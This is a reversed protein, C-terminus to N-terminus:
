KHIVKKLAQEFEEYTQKGIIVHKQNGQSDYIFTAPIAGSWETNLLNIFDEPESIKLLYNEFSVNQSKLFPIVKGSLDEDDDVSIGIFRIENNYNTALKVLEPFEERCPECWTAWVNILIAKGKGANIITKLNNTNIIKVEISPDSQSYFVSCSAFIVIAILLYFKIQTLKTKM